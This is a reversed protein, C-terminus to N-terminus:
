ATRKIIYFIILSTLVAVLIVDFVKIQQLSQMALLSVPIFALASAIYYARRHSMKAPSIVQKKFRIHHLVEHLLVFFTSAFFVYLLLFVLLISTVNRTPDTINMVLFLMLLSGVPLFRIVQAYSLAM